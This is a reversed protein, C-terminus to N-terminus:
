IECKITVFNENHKYLCKPKVPLDFVFLFHKDLESMMYSLRTM